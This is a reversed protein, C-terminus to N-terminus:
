LKKRKRQLIELDTEVDSIEDNVKQFHMYCGIPIVIACLIGFMMASDNYGMREELSGKRLPIYPDVIPMFIGVAILRWIQWKRKPLKALQEELEKEKRDFEIETEEM